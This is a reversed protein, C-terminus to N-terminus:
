TEHLISKETNERTEIFYMYGIMALFLGIETLLEINGELMMSCPLKIWSSSLPWYLQIGYATVIDGIAHSALAALYPLAKIRYAILFPIFTTTAVIISHTPGRHTLPPIIIDIDPLLSLLWILTTIYKTHTIKQTAKAAFYGLAVHGLPYM